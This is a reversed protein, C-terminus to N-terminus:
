GNIDDGVYYEIAVEYSENIIDDDNIDNDKYFLALKTKLKDITDAEITTYQFNKM